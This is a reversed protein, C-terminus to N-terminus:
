SGSYASQLTFTPVPSDVYSGSARKFGLSTTLTGQVLEDVPAPAKGFGQGTDAENMNIRFEITSTNIERARIYYNNDAYVGSGTKRFIQQESSTLQYNGIAAGTGSNSTVTTNYNFTVTGANSLMTSWDNTKAVNGGSASSSLSSVFTITGGSNFYGRRANSNPWSVRFYANLNQNWNATYQSSVSNSGTTSQLASLRFRNPDSELTNMSTEYDAFGKLTGDPNDSTEDAILDGILAQTILGSAQNTQHRSIRDIDTFLQNLHSATVLDGVPVQGSSTTQNYGETGAGVALISEVRSQLANYRTATIIDGVAM